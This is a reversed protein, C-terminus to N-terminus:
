KGNTEWGEEQERMRKYKKITKVSSMIGGALSAVGLAIIVIPLILSKSQTIQSPDSPNYYITIKDGIKYEPQSYLNTNYEKEDVIYKVSIVYTTSVVNGDADVHEAEDIEKSVVTADIEIYDRNQTNIIFVIVGFIILFVGAPIFFRAVSSERFITFLKNM